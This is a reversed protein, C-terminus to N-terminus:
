HFLGWLRTAEEETITGGNKEIACAVVHRAIKDVYFFSRGKVFWITMAQESPTMESWARPLTEPCTLYDSNLAVIRKEIDNMTEM